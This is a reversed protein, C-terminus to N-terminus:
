SLVKTVKLTSIGSSTTSLALGASFRVMDPLAGAARQQAEDL